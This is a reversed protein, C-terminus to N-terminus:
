ECSSKCTIGQIAAWCIHGQLANATSSMRASLLCCTVLVHRPDTVQQSSCCMLAPPQLYFSINWGSFHGLLMSTCLMCLTASEHIVKPVPHLICASACCFGRDLFTRDNDPSMKHLHTTKSVYRPRHHSTPSPGDAM